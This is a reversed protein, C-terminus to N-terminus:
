IIKIYGEKKRFYQSLKKVRKDKLLDKFFQENESDSKFWYNILDIFGLDKDDQKLYLRAFGYRNWVNIQILYDYSLSELIEKLSEREKLITEKEKELISLLFLLFDEGMEDVIIQNKKSTDEDFDYYDVDKQVAYGPVIEFAKMLKLVNVIEKKNKVSKRFRNINERDYTEFKLNDIIELQKDTLIELYHALYLKFM